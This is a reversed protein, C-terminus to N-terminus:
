KRGVVVCYAKQPQCSPFPMKVHLETKLDKNKDL